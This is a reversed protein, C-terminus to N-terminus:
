AEFSRAVCQIMCNGGAFPLGLCFLQPEMVRYAERQGIAAVSPFTIILALATMVRQTLVASQVYQGSNLVGSPWIVVVESGGGGEEAVDIAGSFRM